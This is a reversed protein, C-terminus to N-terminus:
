FYHRSHMFVTFNRQAVFERLLDNYARILSRLTADSSYDDIELRVVGQLTKGSIMRGHSHWLRNDGLIKAIQEARTQKEAVTVPHGRKNADTRHTTWSQFKYEVLWRTLLTVTLDRAQEYSSLTALDQAQLILFEAQSLTGARARTVL